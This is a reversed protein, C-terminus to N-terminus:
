NGRLCHRLAVRLGLPAFTFAPEVCRCCAFDYSVGTEVCRHRPRVVPAARWFPQHDSWFRNQEATRASTHFFTAQFLVRALRKGREATGARRVRMVVIRTGDETL